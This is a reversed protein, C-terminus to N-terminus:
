NRTVIHELWDIIQNYTTIGSSQTIDKDFDHVQTYITLCKSNPILKSLKKSIRYPVDPDLISAALITPPYSQFNNDDLSYDNINEEECLYQIWSGEQRGKIYLLLRRNMPDETVPFDSIINKIM